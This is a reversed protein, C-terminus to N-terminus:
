RLRAQILGRPKVRSKSLVFCHALREATEKARARDSVFVEALVDGAAVRNGVKKKFLFGAGHDIRADM